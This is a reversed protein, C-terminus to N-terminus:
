PSSRTARDLRRPPARAGARRSPAPRRRSPGAPRGCGAIRRHRDGLHISSCASSCGPSRTSSSAAPGPSTPKMAASNILRSPLQDRAIGSFAHELTALILAAPAPSRSRRTGGAGARTSRGGSRSRRRSRTDSPPSASAQDPRRMAPTGDPAEGRRVSRRQGHPVLGLVFGHAVIGCPTSTLM